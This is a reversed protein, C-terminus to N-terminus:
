RFYIVLLEFLSEINELIDMEYTYEQLRQTFFDGETKVLGLGRAYYRKMVFQGRRFTVEVTIFSGAPTEVEVGVDTISYEAGTEDEWTTGLKLPGKLVVINQNPTEGLYDDEFLTVEEGFVRRVRDDELQYVFAVGVGHDVQKIQLRDRSFGDVVHIMGEDEFGGDFVKIMERGPFYAAPSDPDIERQPILVCSTQWFLFTCLM